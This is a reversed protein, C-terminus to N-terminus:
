LQNGIGYGAFFAAVSWNGSQCNVTLNNGATKGFVCFNDGGIFTVGPVHNGDYRFDLLYMGAATSTGGSTNRCALVMMAGGGNSANVSIGTDITTNGASAALQFMGAANSGGARIGTNADILGSSTIRVKETGQIAFIHQSARYEADAWHSGSNNVSRLVINSTTGDGSGLSSNAVQIAAGGTQSPMAVTMRGFATPSDHGIGVLGASTLRMVEAIASGNDVGFVLNAKNTTGEDLNLIRADGSNRNRIEIGHYRNNNSGKDEFRILGAVAAGAGTNLTTVGTKTALYIDTHTEAGNGAVAGGKGSIQIASALSNFVLKRHVGDSADADPMAIVLNGRDSTTVDQNLIRIDGFNKNRIEIGHYRNNNSGTEELRLLGTTAAGEGAEFTTLDTQMAIYVPTNTVADTTDVITGIKVNGNVDIRLKESGEALFVLNSNNSAVYKSGVHWDADYNRFHALSMSGVTTNTNEIRIGDSGWNGESGGSLSTTANSFVMHLKYYPDTETLGINGNSKIRLKETTGGSTHRTRFTFGCANSGGSAHTATFQVNGSNIGAELIESTTDAGNLQLINGSDAGPKLIIKGDSTIRLREVANTYFILPIASQNYINTGSGGNANWIYFNSNNSNKLWIQGGSTSGDGIQLTRYGSSNGPNCGLGMNGHSTIRLREGDNTHMTIMAGASDGFINIANHNNEAGSANLRLWGGTGAGNLYVANTTGYYSLSGDLTYLSSANPNLKLGQGSVTLRGNVDLRLKESSGIRFIHEAADIRLSTYVSSSRNYNVIKNVNSAVGATVEFGEAGSNSVVLQEQPNNTGIGFKGASTIRFREQWTIADGATGASGTNSYSFYGNASANNLFFRQAHKSSGIYNQGTGTFNSGFYFSNSDGDFSGIGKISLTNDPTNDNIGIKGNADIIFKATNGAQAIAFNDGNTGDIGVGWEVTTSNSRAFTIRPAANGNILIGQYNTDNHVSLQQTPNIENIGIYGGSSITVRTTEATGFSMQNSSHNYDMFGAYEGGGSTADSFFISGINSTGSRITIGSNASDAVTLNDANANGETETGLLLKGDAKVTFNASSDGQTYGRFVPSSASSRTAIVGTGDQLVVGAAAGSVANGGIRVAGGDLVSFVETGGDYLNLIDGSGTQTIAAAVTTNNAAVELKDVGILDTDLTTTTGDVTLNGTVTINTATVIGATANNFVIDDTSKLAANGTRGYFGSVAATSAGAFGIHRVQIEVGNGPASAFDLINESVTYARVAANDDPYQVVGDITVLISENNPPAKSLTFTTDNGNGTFNDVTNDSIDFTAFNSAILRGFFQDGATPAASFIITSTHDTAYGTTPTTTNDHPQQLVGNVSVMLQGSQSIDAKTGNSHTAKFKTNVGDFTVNITHAAGSGAATINIATGAVANSASTALKFTHRDEVIIYYVTGNSLGTPATGGGNGYTVRQGTVFRHERATITDASVDVDSSGFTLTYNSIDDLIKFSNAEGTAPRQGIYPM